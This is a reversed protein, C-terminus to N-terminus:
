SCTAKWSVGAPCFLCVHLCSAPKSQKTRPFVWLIKGVSWLSSSTVHGWLLSPSQSVSHLMHINPSSSDGRDCLALHHRTFSSRVGCAYAEQIEVHSFALSPHKTNNTYFLFIVVLSNVGGGGGGAGGHVPNKEICSSGERWKIAPGWHDSHGSNM